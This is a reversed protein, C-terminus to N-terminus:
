QILMKYLQKLIVVGVRGLAGSWVELSSKDGKGEEPMLPTQARLFSLCSGPHRHPGIRDQLSMIFM